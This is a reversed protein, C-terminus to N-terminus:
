SRPNGGSSTHGFIDELQLICGSPDSLSSFRHCRMKWAKAAKTLEAEVQAGKLFLCQTRLGRFRESMELLEPLPALGRATVVDTPFPKVRDIRMPHIIATTQSVRLAEKLFVVKRNDAEILHVEPMGMIALVVGPLGAGAGLDVLSQARTSIRSYLQASDLIHRRWVDGITNRSVLNIRSNWRVLLEVYAKLRDMTERSVSIIRGFGEYGLPERRHAM